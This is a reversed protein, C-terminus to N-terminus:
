TGLLVRLRGMNVRVGPAGVSNVLQTMMILSEEPKVKRMAKSDVPLEVQIFPDGFDANPSYMIAEGHWLWPFDANGGPDPLSGVVGLAADTSVLALGFELNAEDGATLGTTKFSSRLVGRVRLITAPQAFSLLGPGAATVSGAVLDLIGGPVSSWQKFDITRGPRTVRATRRYPM